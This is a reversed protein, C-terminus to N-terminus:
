SYAFTPLAYSITAIAKHDLTGIYTCGRGGGEEGM